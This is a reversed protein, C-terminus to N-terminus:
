SVTPSENFLALLQQAHPVNRPVSTAPSGRVGSNPGSPPANFSQNPSPGNFGHAPITQTPTSTQSHATADQLPVSSPRYPFSQVPYSLSPHASTQMRSLQHVNMHMGLPPRAGYPLSGPMMGPYPAVGNPLPFGMPVNHYFGINPPANPTPPGDQGGSQRFAAMLAEPSQIFGTNSGPISSQTTVQHPRSTQERPVPLPTQRTADHAFLDLLDRARQSVENKAEVPSISMSSTSSISSRPTPRGNDRSRDQQGFRTNDTQSRSLAPPQQATPNFIRPLEPSNAMSQNGSRLGSSHESSPSGSTQFSVPRRRKYDSPRQSAVLNELLDGSFNGSMNEWDSSNPQEDSLPASGNPYLKEINLPYGQFSVRNEPKAHTPRDKAKKSKKPTTNGPPPADYQNSDQLQIERKHHSVWSKLNRDM